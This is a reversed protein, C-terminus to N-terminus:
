RIRRVCVCGSCMQNRHRGALTSRRQWKALKCVNHLVRPPRFTTDTKACLGGKTSGCAEQRRRWRTPTSSRVFVGVVSAEGACDAALGLSSPTPRAPVARREQRLPTFTWIQFEAAPTELDRMDQHRQAVSRPRRREAWSGRGSETHGCIFTPASRYPCMAASPKDFQPKRSPLERQGRVIGLFSPKM